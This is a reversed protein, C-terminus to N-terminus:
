ALCSLCTLQLLVDQAETHGRELLHEVDSAVGLHENLFKCFVSLFIIELLSILSPVDVGQMQAQM